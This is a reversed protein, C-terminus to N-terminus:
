CAEGTATINVLELIILQCTFLNMNALARINCSATLGHPLRWSVFTGDFMATSATVKVSLTMIAYDHSM